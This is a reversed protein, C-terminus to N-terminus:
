LHTNCCLKLLCFIVFFNTQKRFVYYEKGYDSDEKLNNTSFIFFRLVIYLKFIIRINFGFILERFITIQALQLLIPRLTFFKFCSSLQHRLLFQVNKLKFTQM